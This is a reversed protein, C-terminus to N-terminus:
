AGKSCNTPLDSIILSLDEIQIPKSLYSNMGSALCKERDEAFANATVAIIPTNNLPASLERIRKTAEFGDMVPM